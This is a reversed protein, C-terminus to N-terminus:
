SVALKPSINYKNEEEHSDQVMDNEMAWNQIQQLLADADQQISGTDDLLLRAM